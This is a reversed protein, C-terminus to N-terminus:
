HVLSIESILNYLKLAPVRFELLSICEPGHLPFGSLVELVNIYEYREREGESGEM